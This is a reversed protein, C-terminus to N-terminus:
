LRSFTRIRHCNACVVDCKEIEALIAAKGHTKHMRSLIAVKTVGPRHDFDMVYSPFRGGCDTCPLNKAEQIIALLPAQYAKDAM